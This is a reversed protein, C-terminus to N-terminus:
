TRVEAEARITRIRVAQTSRAITWFFGNLFPVVPTWPKQGFVTFGLCSRVCSCLAPKRSCAAPVQLETAELRTDLEEDRSRRVLSLTVSKSCGKFFYSADLVKGRAHPVAPTWSRRALM